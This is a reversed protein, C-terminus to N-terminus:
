ENKICKYLKKEQENKTKERGVEAMFALACTQYEFDKIKKDCLFVSYLSIENIDPFVLYPSVAEFGSSMSELLAM